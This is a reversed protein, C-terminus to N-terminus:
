NLKIICIRDLRALDKKIEISTQPFNQKILSKIKLSQDPDIEVLIYKPSLKFKTIQKFLEEYKALGYNETYLALKPEYTLSTKQELTFNKWIKTSGYPLNAVILDLKKAKIPELLNGRYFKVNTKHFKNNKKAIKLALSSIDTAYIKTQPLKKNLTIAICGSGTGIDAITLKKNAAIKLTEEVIMETEPRPILVNKDVFFDLDFWEKKGILYAIPEFKERRKVLNVFKKEQPKTLKQDPNTFIFEKSKKLVFSLLVETDLYSTQTKIKSNAFLLAQKITM